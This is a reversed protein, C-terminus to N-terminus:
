CGGRERGHHGGRVRDGDGDRLAPALRSSFQAGNHQQERAAPQAGAVAARLEEAVGHQEERGVLHHGRHHAERQRHENGAPTGDFGAAAAAAGAPM